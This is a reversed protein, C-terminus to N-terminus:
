IYQEGLMRMDVVVSEDERVNSLFPGISGQQLQGWNTGVACEVKFCM